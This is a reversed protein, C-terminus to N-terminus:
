GGYISDWWKQYYEFIDEETKIITGNSKKICEPIATRYEWMVVASDMAEKISNYEKKQYSDELICNM